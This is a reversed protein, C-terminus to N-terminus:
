GEKESSVKKPTEAKSETKTEASKGAKSTNNNKYDTQYFGNGKFIPGAGGSILRKLQGRCEECHEKPNDTIKQFYEFMSGCSLCKYEYTPM